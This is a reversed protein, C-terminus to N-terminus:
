YVLLLSDYTVLVTHIPIGELKHQEKSKVSTTVKKTNAILFNRLTSALPPDMISIGPLLILGNSSIDMICDTLHGTTTNTWEM